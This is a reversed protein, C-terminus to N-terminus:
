LFLHVGAKVKGVLKLRLQVIFPRYAIHTGTIAVILQFFQTTPIIYWVQKEIQMTQRLQLDLLFRPRHEGGAFAFVNMAGAPHVTM